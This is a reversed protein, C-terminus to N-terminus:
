KRDTDIGAQRKLFGTITDLDAFAEDTILVEFAM